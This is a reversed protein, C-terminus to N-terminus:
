EQKAPAFYKKNVTRTLEPLVQEPKKTGLWIPDVAPGVQGYWIEPWGKLFPGFRAHKPMGLLIRKNAPGPSKLFTDSEALRILAPQMLGTAALKAVLTEGALERLVAWAKEKHKSTRTMAWGSGGCGWGKTRRPGSPFEVIDFSLDKAELFKPTHWIGSTMMAVKGNIFMGEAGNGFGFSQLQEPTPSVHHTWVMDWRFRYAELVQPTDLTMRTPYWERDTYFGGNSLMFPDASTGYADAFAWHVFRGSKDKKTLKKCISLFPEPWTWDGKPYPVGAEDFLKKNYYVLGFPAIDSPIACVKGDPSFRDFVAPYYDKPNVDGRKVYPTLDEFVDRLYLDAFNSVEVSIVDPANGAVLQTTIKDQYSGYPISDLRVKVGPNRKEVERIAENLIKLIAPDTTFTAVRIPTTQKVCGSLVMTLGAALVLLSLIKKM